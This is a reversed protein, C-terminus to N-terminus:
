ESEKPSVSKRYAGCHRNTRGKFPTWDIRINNPLQGALPQCVSYSCAYNDNNYHCTPCQRPRFKKTM